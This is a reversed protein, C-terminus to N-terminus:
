LSCVLLFCWRKYDMPRNRASPPQQYQIIRMIMDKSFKKGDIKRFTVGVAFGYGHAGGAYAYCDKIYTIIKSTENAKKIDTTSYGDEENNDLGKTYYAFFTAGDNM